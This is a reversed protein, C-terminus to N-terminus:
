VDGSATALIADMRAATAKQMSQLIHSYADLTFAVSHHGLLEQVVKPHEGAALLLTAATHRLDHFRIRPLDARALLPLFSRRVVNSPQLPTGIDTTFVLDWEDQWAEGLALREQHLQRARHERLARVAGASMEIVRRSRRTKPEVLRPKDGVARVRELQRVVQLRGQELDVADWTLGLLEGQRMGTTVALVYLAHLRDERAMDLLTAAQSPTLVRMERREGRPREVADTLNRPVLGWRLAQDLAHRLLDYNYRV